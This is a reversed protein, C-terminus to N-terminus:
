YYKIFKESITNYVDGYESVLYKNEPIGPYTIKRFKILDLKM